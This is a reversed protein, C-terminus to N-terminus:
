EIVWGIEDPCISDVVAFLLLLTEKARRVRLEWRKM